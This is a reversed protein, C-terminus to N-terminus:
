VYEKDPENYCEVDMSMLMGEIEEVQNYTFNSIIDVGNHKIALLEIGGYDPAEDFSGAFYPTYDFTAYCEILEDTVPHPLELYFGTTTM